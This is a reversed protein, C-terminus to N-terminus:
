EEKPKNRLQGFKGAGLIFLIVITKGKKELSHSFEVNWILPPLTVRGV